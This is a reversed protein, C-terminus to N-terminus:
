YGISTAVAKRIMPFRYRYNIIHTSSSNKEPEDSLIDIADAYMALSTLLLLPYGCCDGITRFKERAVSNAAWVLVVFVPIPALASAVIRGIVSSGLRKASIFTGVCIGAYAVLLVIMFDSM